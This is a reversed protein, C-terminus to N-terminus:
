RRRGVYLRLEIQDRFTKPVPGGSASITEVHSFSAEFPIRGPARDAGSVTSYAFGIGLQHATAADIGFPPTPASQGEAGNLTYEDAGTHLLSYQGNVAFYGSFRYRPLLTLSVVNGASYTGPADTLPFIVNGANSVHAVDVTGLQATYSGLATLSVRRTFRVDAAGGVIVGPQGYGTSMDFLRNRSAPEGTGLRYAANVAVRFQGTRMTDGYTNVLQYTAGVSIDGISTRDVSALSDRGTALLLQQFAAQAGPAIAGTVSGSIPNSNLLSQYQEGLGAVRVNIATQSANSAIPVFLQGPHTADTGYLDELASAVTGTTQILTQASSQQALLAPCGESTPAAQCDTLRRQLSSAANRLSLVLAGNRALISPDVLAPNPGVNANLPPPNFQSYLSVRTEVLPVVVGLTIRSTVGYELILPATVIRANGVTGIRGATLRFNSTGLAARIDAEAATFVPVQQPGVTDAVLLSGLNRRPGDGILADYRTFGSLVRVRLTRSPLVAADPLLSTPIQQALAPPGGLCAIVLTGSSLIHRVSLRRTAEHLTHAKTPQNDNLSVDGFICVGRHYQKRRWGDGPLDRPIVPERQRANM